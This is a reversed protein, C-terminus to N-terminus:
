GVTGHQAITRGQDPSTSLGPLHVPRRPRFSPYSGPLTQSVMRKRTQIAARRGARTKTQKRARTNAKRAKTNAKRTRTSAWIDAADKGKGLGAGFGAPGRQDGPLRVPALGALLPLLLGDGSLSLPPRRPYLPLHHRGGPGPRSAHPSAPDSPQSPAVPGAPLHNPPFAQLQFHLSVPRDVGWKSYWERHSVEAMNTLL